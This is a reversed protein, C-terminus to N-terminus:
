HNNVSVSINAPRRSHSATINQLFAKGGYAVFSVLLCCACPQESVFRIATNEHIQHCPLLAHTLQELFLKTKLVTMIVASLYNTNGYSGRFVKGDRPLGSSVIFGRLEMCPGVCTCFKAKMKHQIQLEGGKIM